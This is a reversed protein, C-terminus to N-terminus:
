SAAMLDGVTSEQPHAECRVLWNLLIVRTLGFSRRIAGLSFACFGALGGLFRNV